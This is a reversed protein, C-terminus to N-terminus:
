QTKIMAGAVLKTRFCLGDRNRPMPAVVRIGLEGCFFFSWAMCPLHCPGRPLVELFVGRSMRRGFRKFTSMNNAYRRGSNDDDLAKPPWTFAAKQLIDSCVGQGSHWTGHRAYPTHAGRVEVVGVFGDVSAKAVLGPPREASQRPLTFASPRCVQSKATPGDHALPLACRDQCFSSLGDSLSVCSIRECSHLVKRPGRTHEERISRGVEM